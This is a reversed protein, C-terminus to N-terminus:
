TMAQGFPLNWGDWCVYYRNGGLPSAFWDRGLDVIDVVLSNEASITGTTARMSTFFIM